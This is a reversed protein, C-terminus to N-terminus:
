ASELLSRGLLLGAALYLGDIGLLAGLWPWSVAGATAEMVAVFLPFGAAVLSAAVFLDRTRVRLSLAGFLAGTAALGPVALLGIGFRLLGNPVPGLLLFVLLFVATYVGALLGAAALAKAAYIARGGAPTLLLGRLAGGPAEKLFMRGFLPGGAAAMGLWVSAALAEAPDLGGGELAFAAILAVLLGLFVAPSLADLGRRELRIERGVLVRVADTFGPSTRM